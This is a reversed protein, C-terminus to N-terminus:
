FKKTPIRLASSPPEKKRKTSSKGNFIKIKEELNMKEFMRLFIEITEDNAFNKSFDFLIGCTEFSFKEFRKEDLTFFDRIRMKELKQKHEELEKWEKLKFAM